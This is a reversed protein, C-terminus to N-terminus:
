YKRQLVDCVSKPCDHCMCYFATQLFISQAVLQQVALYLSSARRTTAMLCSDSVEASSLRIIIAMKLSSPIQKRPFHLGFFQESVCRFFSKIITFEALAIEAIKEDKLACFESKSVVAIHCSDCM